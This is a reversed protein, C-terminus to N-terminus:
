WPWGSLFAARPGYPGGPRWTRRPTAQRSLLLTAPDGMTPIVQHYRARFQERSRDLAAKSEASLAMGNRPNLRMALMTIFLDDFEIPYPMQDTATLPTVRRWDGLDARFFWEGNFSAENLELEYQGEIRRGNGVLKLPSTNFNASLDQVGMRSGDRPTPSLNISTEGTLNCVLRVNLPAWWSSNPVWAPYGLPAEVHENGVMLAQLPEGAENGLVSAILVQLRELGEAQEDATPQSRVPILNSERYAARIIAALTTM